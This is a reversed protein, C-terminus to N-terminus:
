VDIQVATTDQKLKKTKSTRINGTEKKEKRTREVRGHDIRLKQLLSDLHQKEKRTTTEGM